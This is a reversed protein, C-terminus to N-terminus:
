MTFVFVCKWTKTQKKAEAHTVVITGSVGPLVIGRGTKTWLHSMVEKWQPM